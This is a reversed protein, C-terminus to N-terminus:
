LLRFFGIVSLDGGGIKDVVGYRLFLVTVFRSRGRIVSIGFQSTTGLVVTLGFVPIVWRVVTVVVLRAVERRVITTVGLRPIKRGV